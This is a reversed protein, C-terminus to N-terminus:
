DNKRATSATPLSTAAEDDSVNVLGEWLREVLLHVPLALVGALAVPHARDLETVWEIGPQIGYRVQWAVVYLAALGLLGPALLAVFPRATRVRGGVLTTLALGGAVPLPALIASALGVGVAATLVSGLPAPSGRHRPHLDLIRPVELAPITAGAPRPRRSTWVVLWLCVVVSVASLALAADVRRQPAFHVDITMSEAEPVLLWGNAYADVRTSPGLDRGDVTAVWGDSHSQAFVFWVPRGPDLGGLQVRTRDPRGSVISAAGMDTEGTTLSRGPADSWLVVEDLDVGTDVGRAAIVEHAGAALGVEGTCMEVDLRRGALADESSGSLRISVPVGDIHLLDDRCGTDFREPVPGLGIGPLGLEAIAVPHALPRGATWDISTVERASVIEVDLRTGERAPFNIPVETVAGPQAGDALEPLDVSGLDEGDVRIRLQTPVSHRGDTVVLLAARDFVQPEAVEISLTHNIPQGWPTTWATGPDGDIASAARETRSGDMRDTAWAVVEPSTHGLIENLLGDDARASLRAIADVRFSREVPLRLLRRISREEDDRTRDTPDQRIRTLVFGLPSEALSPGAADLAHTPVQVIEDIVPSDDGLVLEAIGLPGFDRFRPPDGASDALLTVEVQGVSRQPFVITQGPEQWSEPGLSVDIPDTGDFTLRVETIVRNSDDPSMQQLRIWDLELPEDLRVMLREGRADSFVGVSWATRPDGDVARAAREEGAYTIPNGYATADATLGGRQITVSQASPPADPFRALRNDGPDFRLAREDIRETHGRNHRLSGWREGRRRNSDTVVLSAGRDLETRIEEATLDGTYRL